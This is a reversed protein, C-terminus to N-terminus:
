SLDVRLVVPSTEAQLINGLDLMPLDYIDGQRCSSCILMYAM